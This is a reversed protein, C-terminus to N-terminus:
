GSRLWLRCGSCTAVIRRDIRRQNLELWWGGRNGLRSWDRRSSRCLFRCRGGRLESGSRPAARRSRCSSTAPKSASRLRRAPGCTSRRRSPFVRCRCPRKRCAWLRRFLTRFFSLQVLSHASALSALVRGRESAPFEPSPQERESAANLFKLSVWESARGREGHKKRTNKNFFSVM